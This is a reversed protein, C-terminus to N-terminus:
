NMEDQVVKCGYKPLRFHGYLTMGHLTFPKDLERVLTQINEDTVNAYVRIGGMPGSSGSEVTVTGERRNYEIDNSVYAEPFYVATRVIYTNAYPRKSIASALERMAQTPLQEAAATKENAWISVVVTQPFYRAALFATPLIVPVLFLLLERKRWKTGRTKIRLKM